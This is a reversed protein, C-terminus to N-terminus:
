LFFFHQLKLILDDFHLTVISLDHNNDLSFLRLAVIPANVFFLVLSLIILDLEM